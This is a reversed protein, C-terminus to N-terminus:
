PDFGNAFLADAYYAVRVGCFQLAASSEGFGVLLQTAYDLNSVVVSLEPSLASGFGGSAGTNQFLVEDTFNGTGDYRTLAVTLDASSTDRYYMRVYKIQSAHPLQLPYVLFDSGSSRSICGAAQYAAVTGNGRPRFSSGAVNLYSFSEAVANSAGALLVITALAGRVGAPFRLAM